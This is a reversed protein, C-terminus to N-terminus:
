AGLDSKKHYGDCGVRLPWPRTRWFSASPTFSGCYSWFWVCFQGCQVKDRIPHVPRAGAGFRESSSRPSLLVLLVDLYRGSIGFREPLAVLVVESVGVRDRLSNLPRGCAANWHLGVM